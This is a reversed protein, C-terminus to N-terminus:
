MFLEGQRTSVSLNMFEFRRIIKYTQEGERRGLLLMGDAIFRGTFKRHSYELWGKEYQWPLLRRAINFQPEDIFHPKNEPNLKMLQQAPRIEHVLSRIPEKSTVQIFISHSPYSGFDKLEVKFPPHGMALTQLRNVIREEMMAYQSFKVLALHPRGERFAPRGWSVPSKYQQHFEKKLQLIRDRLEEHPNLVVLYENVIYGPMLQLSPKM